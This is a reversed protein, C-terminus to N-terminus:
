PPALLSQFRLESGQLYTTGVLTVMRRGDASVSADPSSVTVTAFHTIDTSLGSPSATLTIAHRDDGIAHRHAVDSGLDSAM